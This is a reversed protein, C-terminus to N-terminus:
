RVRNELEEKLEPWERKNDGITISSFLHDINCEVIGSWSLKSNVSKVNFNNTYLLSKIISKFIIMQAIMQFRTQSFRICLINANASWFAKKRACCHGVSTDNRQRENERASRIYRAQLPLCINSDFKYLCFSLFGPYSLQRNSGANCNLQM